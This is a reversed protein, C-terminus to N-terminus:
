RCGAAADPEDLLQAILVGATEYDFGEIARGLESGFRDAHAAPLSHFYDRAEIDDAAVLQQLELLRARAEGVLQPQEAPAAPLAPAVVTPAPQTTPTTPAWRELASALLQPEVPKSVLDNMGADLCSRRDEDFVSATMAIIPTTAHRAIQRIRRTAELGDMRPMQVDILIAAYSRQRAREIAEIGDRALDAEYGLIKLLTAAVELNLENDDALLLRRSEPGGLVFFSGTTGDAPQDPREQSTEGVTLPVELSFTSGEDPVSAVALNGHMLQALRVCLALGLGTGGFKRAAGGDGQEFAQFVRQCQEETLGVGSDTVAFRIRATSGDIGVRAASFRVFGRETFRAANTAFNVLVQRIRNADGRLVRPVEPAVDVQLEIDKAALQSAVLAGVGDILQRASFDGQALRAQGAEIRSLDLIDDILGLLHEAAGLVKGMQRRLQPDAVDRLMIHNLGIITNMPTRIEHSMRALFASKAALAAEAADKAVALEATRLAVLEELRRRTATQGPDRREGHAPSDQETM